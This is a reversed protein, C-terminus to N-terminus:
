VKGDHVTPTVRPGAPYSATYPCDYEHQWLIKGDAESLCLVRESGPIAGRGWPSTPNSGGQPLQRDMVYVRRQAVAPGSYGGGIPTRWRFKLGNPQFKEVIGTERWVGDRRPGLWQPWDDARAASLALPLWGLLLALRAYRQLCVMILRLSLPLLN